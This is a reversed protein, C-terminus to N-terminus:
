LRLHEALRRAVAEAMPIPVSNAIQKGIAAPTGEFTFEDPFGHLRASERSTLERPETPHIHSRIGKLNGAVLSPSPRDVSLKSRKRVNDYSGQALSAFRQAVKPTHKVRVHAQVVGPSQESPPPLDFIADGVTHWTPANNSWLSNPEFHTPEPFKFQESGRVGVLFLRKRMTAAGFDCARLVAHSLLFGSGSFDSVLERFISGNDIKLLDPVNEMVFFDVSSDSAIRSFEFVLLGRKDKTGKRKGMSSFSECPPGGIVGLFNSEVGDLLQRSDVDKIDVQVISPTHSLLHGNTELTKCFSPEVEVSHTVEFKNTRDFGLDLAGAGSFLSVM